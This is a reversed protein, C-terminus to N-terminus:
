RTLNSKISKSWNIDSFWASLTSKPVSLEKSIKSYSKEQKRLKIAIHKDDRM